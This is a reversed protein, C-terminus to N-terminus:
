YELATRCACPTIARLAAGLAAVCRIPAQFPVRTRVTQGNGDLYALDLGYRDLGIPVIGAAARGPEAGLHGYLIGALQRRHAFALHALV